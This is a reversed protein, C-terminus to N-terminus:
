EAPIQSGIFLSEYTGYGERALDARPVFRLAASNMCYRKGTPAPGDDFVHGLHSNAFASRVEVRRTFLTNDEHLTVAGPAIIKTFSPWGTGSDYKDLSSFLPEGSVIDVYIGEGKNDWYANKFAPETGNEQTVEYSLPALRARLTAPDPKVFSIWPEVSSSSTSSASSTGACSVNKEARLACVKAVRADRGSGSRYYEYRLPNKTHFDQHYEEAPYFNTFPLIATAVPRDFAGSSDLVSVAARAVAEEDATRYFIASTYSEGRDVFQGGGDVPDIHAFFFDVLAAYSVSTPDYRVEVAERHGSTESTVDEYRPHALHGGAYGSIVETVGPVKEFDAEVCWFCGGAFYALGASASPAPVNAPTRKPIAFEREYYVVGGLVLVVSLILIISITRPM